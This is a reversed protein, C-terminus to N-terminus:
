SARRIRGQAVAVCTENHDRYLGLEKHARERDDPHVWTATIKALTDPFNLTYSGEPDTDIGVLIKKPEDSTTTVWRLRADCGRYRCPVIANSYTRTM